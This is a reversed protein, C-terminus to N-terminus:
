YKVTTSPITMEKRQHRCPTLAIINYYDLRVLKTRSKRIKTNKKKENKRWTKSPNKKLDTFAVYCNAIKGPGNFKVFQSLVGGYRSVFNM